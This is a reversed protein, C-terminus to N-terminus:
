SIFAEDHWFAQAMCLSGCDMCNELPEARGQHGSPTRMTLLAGGMTELETSSSAM